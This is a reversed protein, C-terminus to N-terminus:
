PTLLFEDITYNAGFLSLFHHGSIQQYSISAEVLFVKFLVFDYFIRIKLM